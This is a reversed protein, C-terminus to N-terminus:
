KDSLAGAGRGKEHSGPSSSIAAGKGTFLPETAVAMAMTKLM